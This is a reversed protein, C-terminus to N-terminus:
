KRAPSGYVRMRNDAGIGAMDYEMIAMMGFVAHALHHIGTEPDHVQGSWYANMHRLSAAYVRGRDMGLEWNRDAYKAAGVTYVAAVAALPGTPILDYRLKGNDFKVGQSWLHKNKM